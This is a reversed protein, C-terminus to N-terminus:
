EEERDADSPSLLAMTFGVASQGALALVRRGRLSVVEVPSLEVPRLRPPTYFIPHGDEVPRGYPVHLSGTTTGVGLYGVHNDGWAMVSSVGDADVSIPTM